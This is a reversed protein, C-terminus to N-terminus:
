CTSRDSSRKANSRKVLQGVVLSNSVIGLRRHGSRGTRLIQARRSVTATYSLARSSLTLRASDVYCWRSSSRPCRELRLFHFLIDAQSASGRGSAQPKPQWLWSHLSHRLHSNVKPMENARRSGLAPSQRRKLVERCSRCPNVGVVLGRRAGVHRKLVDEWGGNM